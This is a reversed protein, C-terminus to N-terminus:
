SLFQSYFAIKERLQTTDRRTILDSPAIDSCGISIVNDLDLYAMVNEQNIGGTPCFTLEPMVNKLQKLFKVGGCIEAPFLKLTKIGFASAKMAESVTSVAPLFPLGAIDAMNVLGSDFGPSVAFSFKEETVQAMRKITTVTGVGIFLSKFEEALQKAIDLANQTRLTVEIVKFGYDSLLKAIYYGDEISDLTLVPLIAQNSLITNM